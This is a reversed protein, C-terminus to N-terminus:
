PISESYVNNASRPDTFSGRATCRIGYGALANLDIPIGADYAETEGPLLSVSLYSTASHMVAPVYEGPNAAVSYSCQLTVPANNLGGPGNNTLRAIVRGVPMSDPFLDTVALDVPQSAMSSLASQKIGTVCCTARIPQPITAKLYCLAEPGENGPAKYVFVKCKPDQLCKEQCLGPEAYPLVTRSYDSRPRDTSWELTTSSRTNATKIGSICCPDTEAAPTVRKLYCLPQSGEGEYGPKKYVFMRCNPDQLCRRQCAGPDASSLILRAYDSGPRDTSWEITTGPGITDPLVGVAPQSFLPSQISLAAQAPTALLCLAMFALSLCQIPQVLKM